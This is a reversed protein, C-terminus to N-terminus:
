AAKIFWDEMNLTRIKLTVRQSETCTIINMKCKFFTIQRPDCFLNINSASNFNHCKKLRVPYIILTNGMFM